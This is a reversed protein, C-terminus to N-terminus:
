LLSDPKVPPPPKEIGGPATEDAPNKKVKLSEVNKSFDQVTSKLNTLIEKLEEADKSPPVESSALHNQASAIQKLYEDYSSKNSLINKAIEKQSASIKELIKKTEQLHEVSSSNITSIKDTLQSYIELTADKFAVTLDDIDLSPASSGPGPTPPTPAPPVPGPTPPTPTAPPTPPAPPVPGPTPPPTRPPTGPTPAPPVPGPPTAGGPGFNINRYPNM